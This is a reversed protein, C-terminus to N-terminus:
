GKEPDVSKWIWIESVEKKGEDVYFVEARDGDPYDYYEAIAYRGGFIIIDDDGESAEEYTVQRVYEWSDRLMIMVAEIDDDTVRAVEYIAPESEYEDEMDEDDTMASPLPGRGDALDDPEQDGQDFLLMMDTDLMTLFPRGIGHDAHPDDPVTSLRKRVFESLTSGLDSVYSDLCGIIVKASGSSYVIDLLWPEIDHPPTDLTCAYRVMADIIESATEAPIIRSVSEIIREDHSEANLIGRRFLRLRGDKQLILIQGTEDGTVEWGCGGIWSELKIKVVDM